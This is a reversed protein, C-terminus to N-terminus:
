QKNLIIYQKFRNYESTLRGIHILATQVPWGARDKPAVEALVKIHAELALLDRTFGETDRGQFDRREKDWARWDAGETM